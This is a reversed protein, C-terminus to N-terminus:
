NEGTRNRTRAHYDGIHLYSSTVSLLNGRKNIATLHLYSSTVSSRKRDICIYIQATLSANHKKGLAHVSHAAAAAVM